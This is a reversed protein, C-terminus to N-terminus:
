APMGADEERTADCEQPACLKTAYAVAQVVAEERIKAVKAQRQLLKERDKALKTKAQEDTMGKRANKEPHLSKCSREHKNWLTPYYPHRKDTALRHGCGSCVVHHPGFSEINPNTSFCEIRKWIDYNTCRAARKKKPKGKASIPPKAPKVSQLEPSPRRYPKADVNRAAVTARRRPRSPYPHSTAGSTGNRPETTDEVLEQLPSARASDSGASVTQRKYVPEECANVIFMLSNKGVAFASRPTTQLCSM